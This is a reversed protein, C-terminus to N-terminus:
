SLFIYTTSVVSLDSSKILDDHDRIHHEETACGSLDTFGDM